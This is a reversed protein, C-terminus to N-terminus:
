AEIEIRGITGGDVTRRRTSNAEGADLFAIALNDVNIVAVADRRAVGMEVADHDRAALADARMGPDTFEAAGAAAGARMEMVFHDDIAPRDIRGTEQLNASIHNL